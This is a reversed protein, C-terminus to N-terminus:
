PEARAPLCGVVVAPCAPTPLPDRATRYPLTVRVQLGGERQNMLELSQCEGYLHQLRARTNSLGIGERPAEPKDTALGPGNDTVTLVLRTQERVARLAIRGAQDRPEIGHRIANEVIPQLLLTPVMAERTEAPADIEVALRDGFRAREIDLYRELFTLEQSLPVEQADSRDLSQRLLEGLRTLTRDADDPREHILAAITNLTNFLFHPNLQMRLADLHARSLQGELEATRRERERYRQYYEWGHCALLIIWYTTLHVVTYFLLLKKFTEAYVFPKGRVSMQGNLLAAYAVDYLLVFAISCAFHLLFWRAARGRELPIRRALWIVGLGLVALVYNSELGRRLALPWSVTIEEFRQSAYVQAADVLALTTFIGMWCVLKGVPTRVWARVRKLTLAM